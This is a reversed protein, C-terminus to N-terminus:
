STPYLSPASLAEFSASTETRGGLIGYPPNKWYPELVPRDSSAKGSSEGSLDAGLMGKSDRLKGADKTRRTVAPNRRETDCGEARDHVAM